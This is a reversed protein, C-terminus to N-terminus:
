VLRLRGVAPRSLGTLGAAPPPRQFWGGSEVNAVLHVDSRAFNHIRAHGCQL